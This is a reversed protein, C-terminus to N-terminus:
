GGAGTRHSLVFLKSQAVRDKGLGQYNINNQFRAISNETLEGTTPLNAAARANARTSAWDANLSPMTGDPRGIVIYNPSNADGSVGTSVNVGLIDVGAAQYEVGLVPAAVNAVDYIASLFDLRVAPVNQIAAQTRLRYVDDLTEGYDVADNEIEISRVPLKTRIGYHMKGECATGGLHLGFMLGKEYYDINPTITSVKTWPNEPHRNMAGAASSAVYGNEHSEELRFSSKGFLLGSLNETDFGHKDVYAKRSSRAYGLGWVDCVCGGDDEREFTSHLHPIGSAGINFPTRFEAVLLGSISLVGTLVLMKIRSKNM